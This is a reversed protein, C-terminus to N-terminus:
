EISTASKKFSSAVDKVKPMLDGLQSLVKEKGEEDDEAVTLVKLVLDHYQTLLQSQDQQLQPQLFALIAAVHRGSAHLM